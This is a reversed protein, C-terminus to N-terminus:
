FKHPNWFNSDLMKSPCSYREWFPDDVVFFPQSWFSTWTLHIKLKWGFQPQSPLDTWSLTWWRKPFLIGKPSMLALAVKWLAMFEEKKSRLSIIMMIYKSLRINKELFLSFWRLSKSFTSLLHLSCPTESLGLFDIKQTISPFNIPWITEWSPILIWGFCTLAM